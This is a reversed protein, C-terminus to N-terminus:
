SSLNGESGSLFYKMDTKEHSSEQSAPLHPLLLQKHKCSPHSPLGCAERRQEKNAKPTRIAMTRNHLVTFLAKDEGIKFERSAREKIAGAASAAM